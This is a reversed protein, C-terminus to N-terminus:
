FSVIKLSGKIRMYGHEDGREWLKYAEMNAGYCTEINFFICIIIIIIILKRASYRIYCVRLFNNTIYLIYKYHWAPKPGLKLGLEPRLNEVEPNLECREM